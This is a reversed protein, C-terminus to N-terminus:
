SGLSSGPQEVGSDILREIAKHSKWRKIQKERKLAETKNNYSETWVVQWPGRRRTSSSKNCFHEEFRRVPDSSCGIYFKGSSQSRLIYISYEM